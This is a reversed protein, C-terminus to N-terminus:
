IYIIDYKTAFSNLLDGKNSPIDYLSKVELEKNTVYEVPHEDRHM